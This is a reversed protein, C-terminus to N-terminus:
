SAADADAVLKGLVTLEIRKANYLQKGPGSPFYKLLGADRLPRAADKMQDEFYPLEGAARLNKLLEKQEASLNKGGLSDSVSRELDPGNTEVSVGGIKLTLKSGTLLRNLGERYYSLAGIVIVPWPLYQLLLRFVEMYPAPTIFFPKFAIVILAAAIVALVAKTYLDPKM